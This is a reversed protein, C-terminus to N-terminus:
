KLYKPKREDVRGGWMYYGLGNRYFNQISQKATTFEEDTTYTERSWYRLERWGDINKAKEVVTIVLIGRERV